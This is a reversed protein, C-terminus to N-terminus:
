SSAPMAAHAGWMVARPSVPVSDLPGNWVCQCVSADVWGRKAGGGAAKGFRHHVLRGGCPRCNAPRRAHDQGGSRGAGRREERGYGTGAAVRAGSARAGGSTELPLTCARAHTLGAPLCPPGTSVAMCCADV